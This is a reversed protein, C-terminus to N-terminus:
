DTDILQHHPVVVSRGRVEYVPLPYNDAFSDLPCLLFETIDDVVYSGLDCDFQAHRRGILVNCTSGEVNVLVIEGFEICGVSHFAQMPLVHGRSYVTGRVTAKSFIQTRQIRADHIVRKVEPATASDLVIDANSVIIESHFRRSSSLYAQQLQHRKALMSPVNIFNHCSRVCRKFFQHKSEFRLTWLKSLPGFQLTLQGYHSMFHHKPRLPVDPYLSYRRSLYDQILVHMYAVQGVSISPAMVLETVSRLLLLAQYVATGTDVLDEILLPLVRLLCWNQCASGSLRKLNAKLQPPKVAADSGSFPFRELRKNLVAISLKNGVKSSVFAKLYLPVDYCVVGEFLDHAVCPPLGPRCVHFSNLKNFISDFKIGKYSLIDGSAVKEIADKYSEVTRMQDRTSCFCGNRFEDKSLTCFRCIYPVSSFNTVFGGLWHSGLNDGTIAPVIVRFCYGGIEIGATELTKLDDVLRSFVRHRAKIVDSELGLMVIQIHDIASRNHLRLNGLAFYFGLIKHKCKASGIPNAVEFSDQYLILSLQRNLQGDATCDLSRFVTGDTFDALVGSVGARTELCQTLVSSDSLLAELSKKIPIYYCYSSKNSSNVGVYISEPKVYHFNRQVYALRKHSSNLLGGETLCNQILDSKDVKNVAATATEDCVGNAKCEQLLSQQVYQMNLASINQMENAIVDVTSEPVQHFAMLRVFFLSLNKTFQDRLVEHPPDSLETSSNSDEASCETMNVVSKDTVNESNTETSTSSVCNNANTSLNQKIEPKLDASSWNLHDRGLHSSFSSRVKYRKTCYKIPWEISM